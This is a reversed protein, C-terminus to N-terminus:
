VDPKLAREYNTGWTQVEADRRHLLMLWSQTTHRRLGASQGKRAASELYLKACPCGLYFDPQILLSRKHMSQCPTSLSRPCHPIVRVRACAIISSRPSVKSKHKLHISYFWTLMLHNPKIALGTVTLKFPHRERCCQSIYLALFLCPSSIACDRAM